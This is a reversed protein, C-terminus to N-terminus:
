FSRGLSINVQNRTYNDVAINSANDIYTLSGALTWKALLSDTFVYNAGIVYRKETDSRKETFAQTTDIDKFRVQKHSTRGYINAEKSIQWNLGAFIEEGNNSFYTQRAHENFVRAGGQIAVKDGELYRGASLGVSNYDSDRADDVTRTFDRKQLVADATLETRGNEYIGTWAPNLGYYNAYQGHGLSINDAQLNINARWRRAAVWAPGTSLSLVDLDFESHSAYDLSYISAQSQWLFAASSGAINVSEPSLYRHTVGANLNLAHDSHKLASPLLTYTTSGISFSENGPGANVNNDWLIGLSVFPSWVHPTGEAQVGELFRRIKTKVGEPTSPDNLVQEANKRAEAYNLTRFYAVALELRARSLSPQNSLITQFSKIAEELNGAERQTIAQQFLKEVEDRPMEARATVAFLLSALLGITIVQKKNSKNM